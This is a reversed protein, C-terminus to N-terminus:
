SPMILWNYVVYSTIIIFSHCKSLPLPRDSRLCYSFVSLTIQPTFAIRLKMDTVYLKQRSNSLGYFYYLINKFWCPMVGGGSHTYIHTFM